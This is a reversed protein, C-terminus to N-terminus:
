RDAPWTEPSPKARVISTAVLAGTRDITSGLATFPVGVTLPGGIRQAKLAKSADITINKGTRMQLTLTSGSAAFLTGTILHPADAWAVPSFKVPPGFRVPFSPPVGFIALQGHTNKSEDLFASAVYVKGNAVVPVINANGSIHPWSGAPASFLKEYAGGSPTANFAYLTIATTNADTPKGVAWVIATGPQTSNSSVVTFFSPYQLGTPITTSGEQVLHPSPSLVLKWTVLSSGSEAAAGQSTVVRGIGDSGTFYSPGCWCGGLQHQDLVASSNQGPSLMADRNLLLLNGDKGAVVALNPFAGSQPPLLMVGGAGLDTDDQDLTAVNSPTYTGIVGLSSSLRVVSEQINTVGDYTGPNSNATSFFLEAATLLDGKQLQGASAIGYGSMWISSLFYSGGFQGVTSASQTDELQNGIPALAVGGVGRAGPFAGWGLIWGRSLAPSFDCFSGFAAYLLAHPKIDFTKTPGRESFLVLGPRQREYRADFSYSSGDTLNHAASVTLPSNWQDMLTILNLAHLQYTPPSGNVYAILYLTQTELDIVPTGNVGINPGNFNCGTLSTVPVPPGLNRQVLIIGTSTDIAYITNSETVVYVVDHTGGAINLSSVVLPQADVQDDLMVTELLRFNNPFNTATLKTENQNWGTRLNDYHYTTVATQAAVNGLMLVSWFLSCAIIFHKRM